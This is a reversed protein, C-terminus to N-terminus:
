TPSLEDDDDRGNYGDFVLRVWTSGLEKSFTVEERVSSEQSALM